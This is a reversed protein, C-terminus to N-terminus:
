VWKNVESVRENAIKLLEHMFFTLDYVSVLWATIEIYKIIKVMPM